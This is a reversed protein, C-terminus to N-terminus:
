RLKRLRKELWGAIAEVDAKAVIVRDILFREADDAGVVLRYGNLYLFVATLAFAIRKNGDIFAHNQSLSQMLAAAQLSLSEYYGSRPRALASELLGLDRVGASGGFRDILRDHLYLAEELTPYVTRKPAM